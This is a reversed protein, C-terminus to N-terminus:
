GCVSRDIMDKIGRVDDLCSIGKQCFIKDFELGRLDSSKTIKRKRFCSCSRVQGFRVFNLRVCGFFVLGISQLNSGQSWQVIEVKTFFLVEKKNDKEKIKISLDDIKLEFLSCFAQKQQLNCLICFILRFMNVTQLISVIEWSTLWLLVRTPQVM